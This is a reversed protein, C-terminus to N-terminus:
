QINLSKIWMTQEAFQFKDTARDFNSVLVLSLLATLVTIGLTWYRAFSEKKVFLLVLAGALPLFILTSLIRPYDPHILLQDM